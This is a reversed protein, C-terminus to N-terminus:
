QAVLRRVIVIQSPSPLVLLLISLHYSHQTQTQLRRWAHSPGIRARPSASTRHCLHAPFASRMTRHAHINIAVTFFSNIRKSHCDSREGRPTDTCDRTRKM